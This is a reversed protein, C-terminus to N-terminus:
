YQCKPYIDSCDNKFYTKMDLIPIKCDKRLNLPFYPLNIVKVLLIECSVLECVALNIVICIKLNLIFWIDGSTQLVNSDGTFSFDLLIVCYVIFLWM